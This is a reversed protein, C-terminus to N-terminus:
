PKVEPPVTKNKGRSPFRQSLDDEISKAMPVGSKVAGKVTAYFALSASYAESGAQMITDDIGECLQLLPNLVKLLSQVAVVDKQLEAVNVYPPVLTPNALAHELAKEVFTVSKDGMKPLVMREEKTLAIMITQLKGQLTAVAGNIAQLDAASLSISVQNKDM